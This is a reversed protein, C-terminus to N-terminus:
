GVADLIREIHKLHGREHRSMWDGFYRASREYVDHVMGTVTATREWADPPLPELVALLETRQARFVEFAPGFEWQPYDTHKM